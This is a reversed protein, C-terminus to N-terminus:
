VLFAVIFFSGHALDVRAVTLHNACTQTAYASLSM